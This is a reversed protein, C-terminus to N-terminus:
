ESLPSRYTRREGGELWSAERAECDYRWGRRLALWWSFQFMAESVIGVGFPLALLWLSTAKFTGGYWQLVLVIAAILLILLGFFGIGEAIGHLASGLPTCERKGLRESESDWMPHLFLM